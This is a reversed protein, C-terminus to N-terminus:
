GATTAVRGYPAAASSPRGAIGGGAAAALALLLGIGTWLATDAIASATDETAVAIDRELQALQAEFEPGTSFQAQWNNVATNLQAEPIGLRDSMASVAQRRDEPGIVGNAGFAQNLFQTLEARAQEPNQAASLVASRALSELQQREAPSIAQQIVTSAEQRIQAPDVTVGAERLETALADAAYNSAPSFLDVPGETAEGTFTAARGVLGAAGTFAASAASSVMWVAAWTAVAWVAVGHLGAVLESPNGTLRGAAWGGVFLAFLLSL